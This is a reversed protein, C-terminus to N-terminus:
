DQMTHVRGLSASVARYVVVQGSLAILFFDLSFFQIYVVLIVLYLDM